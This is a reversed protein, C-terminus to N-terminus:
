DLLGPTQLLSRLRPKEAAPRDLARLFREWREDDLTFSTRDTLIRRAEASAAERVFSTLTQGTVEAVMEILAREEASTVVGLWADTSPSTM